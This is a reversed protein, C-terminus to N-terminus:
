HNAVQARFDYLRERNPDPQQRHASILEKCYDGPQYRFTWLVLPFPLSSSLFSGGTEGTARHIMFIGSLFGVYFIFKRVESTLVLFFECRNGFVKRESKRKVNIVYTAQVLTSKLKVIENETLSMKSTNQKLAIVSLKISSM